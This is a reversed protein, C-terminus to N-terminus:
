RNPPRTTSSNAANFAARRMTDMAQADKHRLVELQACREKWQRAEARADDIGMLAFKRIEEGDFV